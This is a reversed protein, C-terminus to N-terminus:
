NPVVFFDGKQGSLGSVMLLRIVLDKMYMISRHIPLGTHKEKLVPRCRKCGHRSPRVATEGNSPNIYEVAYGDFVDPDYKSLGNIAAETGAWKYSGLPAKKPYRDSIPRVM